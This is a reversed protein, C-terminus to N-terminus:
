DGQGTRGRPDPGYKNRGRTGSQFVAYGVMGLGLYPIFAFLMWWWALEADHLRRIIGTIWIMAAFLLAITGMTKDADRAGVLFLGAGLILIM